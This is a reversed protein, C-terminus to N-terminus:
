VEKGKFIYRYVAKNYDCGNNIFAQKCVMMGHGTDQHLQKVIEHKIEM